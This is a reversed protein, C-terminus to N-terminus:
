MWAVLDTQAGFGECCSFLARLGAPARAAVEELFADGEGDVDGLIGLYLPYDPRPLGYVRNDGVTTDDLIFLRAVHLRDFQAFPIIGNDAKVVGPKENMSALLARLEAERAPVIPALVFFQSQPTMSAVLVGRRGDARLPARREDHAALDVA